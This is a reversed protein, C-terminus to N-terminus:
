FAGAGDIFWTVMFVMGLILNNPTKKPDKQDM